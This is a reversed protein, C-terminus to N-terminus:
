PLNKVGPDCSIVCNGNLTDMVTITYKAKMELKNEDNITGAWASKSEWSLQKKHSGTFNCGSIKYRKLGIQDIRALRYPGHKKIRAVIDGNGSDGGTFLYAYQDNGVQVNVWPAPQSSKRIDLSIKPSNNASIKHSKSSM